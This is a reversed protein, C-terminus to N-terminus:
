ARDAEDRGMRILQDTTLGELKFSTSLIREAVERRRASGGHFKSRRLAIFREVAEATIRYTPRRGSSINIAELQGAKIWNFVTRRSVGFRRAIDAVSYMEREM